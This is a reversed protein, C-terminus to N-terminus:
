CHQIKATHVPLSCVAIDARQAAGVAARLGQLIVTQAAYVKFNPEREQCAMQGLVVQGELAKGTWSEMRLCYQTGIGGM